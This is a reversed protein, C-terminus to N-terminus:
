DEARDALAELEADSLKSLDMSKIPKDTIGLQLAETPKEGRTDRIFRAAEMDGREAKVVAALVIALDHTTELGEAELRERIEDDTVGLALVRNIMERFTKNRRKAEGSAIGGKRGNERAMEPTQGNYQILNPTGDHRAM